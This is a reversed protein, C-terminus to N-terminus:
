ASLHCTYLFFLLSASSHFQLEKFYLLPEPTTGFLPRVLHDQTCLFLLPWLNILPCISLINRWLTYILSSLLIPALDLSPTSLLNNFTIIKRLPRNILYYVDISSSFVSLLSESCTYSSNFYIM